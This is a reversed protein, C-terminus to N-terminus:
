PTTRIAKMYAIGVPTAPKRRRTRDRMAGQLTAQLGPPMLRRLDPRRVEATMITRGLLRASLGRMVTEVEPLEPM